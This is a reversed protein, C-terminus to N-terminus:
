FAVETITSLVTLPTPNPRTIQINPAYQWGGGTTFRKFESRLPPAADLNDGQDYAARTAVSPAGAVGVTYVGSDKVQVGVHVIRRRKGTASSTAQIASTPPEPTWPQVDIDFHFGAEFTSDPADNGAIIGDGGVTFTGLFETGSVVQVSQGALQPISSSGMLLMDGGGLDLTDGSGLGFGLAGSAATFFTGCDMQADADFRELLYVTNGGIMRRCVAYIVGQRSVMALYADGDRTSWLVGGLRSDQGQDDYYICLVTGDANLAFIYREPAQANGSTMALSVPNRVLHACRKSIETIRWPTTADGTTFTGMIRNGGSEIYVVGEPVQVPFAYSTGVPGINEVSFSNGSLPTNVDEPVYYAAKDTLIILNGASIVYRVHQGSKQGIQHFIAANADAGTIDFDTVDIPSALAIADPITPFDAFGLRGAHEFVDGPYGRVPSIVQEDWVVSAAPTAASQSSDACQVRTSPGIIYDRTSGSDNFGLYGNIMIATLTNGSIGVLLAKAGSGSGEIEDQTRFGNSSGSVNIAFTPPLRDIVTATANRADVVTDIHIEKLDESGGGYRFITGVHGAKLVDASWQVTISGTLASPQMTINKTEPFRFYLQATSGGHGAAFVFLAWTWVGNAYTLVRPWFDHSAVYLTNARAHWTVAGVNDATWPAGEASAVLNGSIDYIDIGAARLFGVFEDGDSTVLTVNVGTGSLTAMRRSGPRQAWGYSNLIRINRGRKLSRTVAERNGSAAYDESLEGFSVDNQRVPAVRAM